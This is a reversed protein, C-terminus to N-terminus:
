AKATPQRKRPQVEVAAERIAIRPVSYDHVIERYIADGVEYKFQEIWRRLGGIIDNYPLQLQNNQYAVAATHYLCTDIMVDALRAQAQTSGEVAAAYSAQDTGFAARNVPHLRNITITGTIPDFEGGSRSFSGGLDDYKIDKYVGGKLTPAERILVQADCSFNAKNVFTEARIKARQGFGYGRFGLTM